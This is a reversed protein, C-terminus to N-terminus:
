PRSYVEAMGVTQGGLSAASQGPDANFGGIAYVKGGITTLTFLNRANKMDPAKQIMKSDANWVECSALEHNPKASLTTGGAILIVTEGVVAAQARARPTALVQSGIIATGSFQGAAAFEIVGNVGGAGSGGFMWLEPGVQASAQWRADKVPKSTTATFKKTAPDYVEAGGSLALVPATAGTPTYLAVGGVYLVVNTTEDFVAVGDMRPVTMDVGTSSLPSFVGTKPDFIEGVPLTLPQPPSGLANNIGGAILVTGDALKNAYHRSRPLNLVGTALTFRNTKPDFVHASLLDEQIPKGTSDVREWGFGGAVLVRGDDLLTATHYTRAVPLAYNTGSVTIGVLMDGANGGLAPDSTKTFTNSVPDYVECSTAYGVGAPNTGSAAITKFGGVILIRGDNLLTATHGARPTQLSAALQWGETRPGELDAAVSSAPKDGKPTAVNGTAVAPVDIGTADGSGVNAVDYTGSIRLNPEDGLTVVVESRNAGSAMSAGAGFTNGRVKLDFELDPDPNGKIVVEQSFLIRVEDGKSAFTSSAISAFTAKTVRPANATTMPATTGSTITAIPAVTSASTSKKQAGGGGNCGAVAAILCSPVVLIRTKVLSEREGPLKVGDECFGRGDCARRPM